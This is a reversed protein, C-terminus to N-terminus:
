CRASHQVTYGELSTLSAETRPVSVQPWYNNRKLIGVGVEIMFNTYISRSLTKFLDWESDISDKGTVLLSLM